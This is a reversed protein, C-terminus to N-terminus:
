DKFLSEKYDYNPNFYEIFAKGDHFVCSIVRTGSYMM